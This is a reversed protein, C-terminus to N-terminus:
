LKMGMHRAETIIATAVVATLRVVETEHDLEKIGGMGEQKRSKLKEKRKKM